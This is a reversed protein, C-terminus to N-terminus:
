GSNWHGKCVRTCKSSGSMCRSWTVDFGEKERSHLLEDDQEAALLRATCERDAAEKEAIEAGAEQLAEELGASKAKAQKLQDVLEQKTLM